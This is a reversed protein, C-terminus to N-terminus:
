ERVEGPARTAREPRRAPGSAPRLVDGPYESTFLDPRFIVLPNDTQFPTSKRLAYTGGQYKIVVAERVFVLDPASKDDTKRAM